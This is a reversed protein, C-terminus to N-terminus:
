LKKTKQTEQWREAMRRMLFSKSSEGEQRKIETNSPHVVGAAVDITSVASKEKVDLQRDEKGM